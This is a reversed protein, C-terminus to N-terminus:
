WASTASGGELIFVVTEDINIALKTADNEDATVKLGTDATVTQIATDAKAGQATTAYEGKTQYLGQAATKTLIDAYGEAESKKVYDTAVEKAMTGLDAAQIATDALGLSTQVDTALKSKAIAADSAIHADKLTGEKVEASVKNDNSVEVKVTTGDVGTYIDVLGSLPIETVNNEGKGSDTNWTIVLKLGDDSLAVSEIMGDKIFATADIETKSTDSVLKIKKTVSDYVIGYKTDADNADAYAKADDLAKAAAGYADYTNEAIVDQKGALATVMESKYTSLAGAATAEAATQAGTIADSLGNVDAIEHKHAFDTIEAKTHTHESEAYNGALGDAYDKAYAKANQEAANWKAVDGDTIKNLEDANTHAHKKDVADAIETDSKTHTHSASQLGTIIGEATAMRTRVDTVNGILGTDVTEPYNEDGTIVRGYLVKELEDVNAANTNATAQAAEAAAQATAANDVGKQAKTDAASIAGELTQVATNLAINTAYDGASQKGALAEEVGKFTTITADAKIAAIANANAEEAARAILAEAAVANEVETDTSFDKILNDVETQSYTETKKYYDALKTDTDVKADALAQDAKSKADAKADELAKNAKVQADEAARGEAAEIADELNEVATDFASKDAKDALLTTLGETNTYGAFKDDVAKVDSPTAFDAAKKGSDVLNGNTDLGAFNGAVANTVKDAKVAIATALEAPDTLGDLATKIETLSDIVGEAGTGTLFDNIAAAAGDATKQAAKVATDLAADADELAKKDTAYATADVKKALETNVDATKAYSKLTETVDATKAYDELTKNVDATKAYFELATALETEDVYDIKSVTESLADIRKGLAEEAGAARGAEDTIAQEAASMRQVLGNTVLEKNEDFIGDVTDQLAKIAAAQGEATSTDPKVWKITGDAQLTLQSGAVTDGEAVLLSIQGGETVNITKGDGTPIIGIQQLELKTGEANEALVYAVMKTGEAVAIVQGPYSVPTEAYAGRKEAYETALTKSEFVSYKDLPLGKSRKFAVGASWTAAADLADFFTTNLNGM